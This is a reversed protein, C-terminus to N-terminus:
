KKKDGEQRHGEINEDSSETPVILYRRLFLLSDDKIDNAIEIAERSTKYKTAV